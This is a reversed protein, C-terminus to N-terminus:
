AASPLPDPLASAEESVRRFLAEYEGARLLTVLAEHEGAWLARLEVHKRAHYDAELMALAAGALGGRWLAGKIMANRLFSAERRGLTASPRQGACYARLAWLLAYRRLKIAHGNVSDVYDHDIHASLRQTPAGPLAEHVIMHDSWRAQDRRILRKRHESRFVFRRGGLTAWDDRRLAYFPLSPDTGKWRSIADRALPQLSEDADLFMVYDCRDGIERMARARAAGYGQWPQRVCHAGSAKAIAYSGDTSGSDVCVVLDCVAALSELCRELRPAENGHIVFGALRLAAM